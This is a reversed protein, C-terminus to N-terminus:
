RRLNEHVLMFLLDNMEWHTLFTGLGTWPQRPEPPPVGADRPVPLASYPLMRGPAQSDTDQPRGPLGCFPLYGLVIVALFVGLPLLARFRLRAALYAAAVPAL